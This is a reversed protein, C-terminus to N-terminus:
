SYQEALIEELNSSNNDDGVAMCATGSNCSVAGLEFRLAGVPASVAHSVWRKGTWAYAIAGTSSSRTVAGANV